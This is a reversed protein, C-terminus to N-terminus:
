LPDDLLFPSNAISKHGELGLTMAAVTRALSRVTDLKRRGELCEFLHMRSRQVGVAAKRLTGFKEIATRELYNQYAKLTQAYLAECESFTVHEGPKEKKSAKSNKM